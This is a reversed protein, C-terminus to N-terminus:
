RRRRNIWQRGKDPSVGTAGFLISLSGNGFNNTAVVDPRGDNNFDAVAIQKVVGGIYGGFSGLPLANPPQFLGDSNGLVIETAGDTRNAVVLDLHGDGNVDAVALM